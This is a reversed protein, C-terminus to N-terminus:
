GTEGPGMGQFVLVVCNICSIITTISEINRCWKGNHMGFTCRSIAYYCCIKGYRSDIQAVIRRWRDTMQGVLESYRFLDVDCQHFSKDIQSNWHVAKSLESEMAKLVGKKQELEAKATQMACSMFLYFHILSM